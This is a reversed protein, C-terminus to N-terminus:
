EDAGGGKANFSVEVDGAMVIFRVGGGSLYTCCSILEIMGYILIRFVYLKCRSKLGM